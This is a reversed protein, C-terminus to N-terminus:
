VAGRKVIECIKIVLEQSWGEHCGIVLSKRYDPKLMNRAFDFHLVPAEFLLEKKIKSSVAELRSADGSIPVAFPVVEEDKCAPVCDPLMEKIISWVKRRHTIDKEIQGNSSPLASYAKQPFAVLDPLYGYLSNIEFITETGFAGNNIAILKKIADEARDAQAMSLKKHWAFVKKYIDPHKSYFGGGMVCPYLKSLSVITFDGWKALFRGKLQTFITNACDNLIVWNNNRAVSEVDALNQPFGFQHFVLVAKTRSSPTMTPFATRSIASLVCQGLFPPVLIEDMRSLGFASLGAVIASRGCAFPLVKLGLMSELVSFFVRSGKGEKFIPYLGTM